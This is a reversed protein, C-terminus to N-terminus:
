AVGSERLLEYAKTVDGDVEELARKCDMIGAGTQTRLEKIADVASQAM